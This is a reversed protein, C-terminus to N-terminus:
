IYNSIKKIAKLIDKERDKLFKYYAATVYSYNYISKATFNRLQCDQKYADILDM